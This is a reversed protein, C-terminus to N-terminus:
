RMPRSLQSDLDRSNQPREPRTVALIDAFWVTPRGARTWALDVATSLHRHTSRTKQEVGMGSARM